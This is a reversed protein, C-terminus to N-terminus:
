GRRKRVKVSTSQLVKCTSSLTIYKLLKFYLFLDNSYRRYGTCSFNRDEITRGQVLVELLIMIMAKTESVVNLM